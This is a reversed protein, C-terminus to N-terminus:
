PNAAVPESPAALPLAAPIVLPQVPEPMWDLLPAPRCITLSELDGLSGNFVNFDVDGAIGHLRGRNGYQWFSWANGDVIEPSWLSTYRAVWVPYGSMQNALYQNYFKQNSYIIPKVKYADEVLALWDKVGQAVHEAPYGDAVEVDLVPPLDGHQLDVTSLFNRAQLAAPVGPRFFHYAGRLIGAAQMADWNKCFFTDQMSQGESAKVFAFHVDQAAVQQWDIKKQYHSVDIGHVGFGEKRVTQEHCATLFALAGLLIFKSKM